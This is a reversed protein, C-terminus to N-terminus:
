TGRLYGGFEGLRRLPVSPADLSRLMDVPEYLNMYNMILRRKADILRGLASGGGRSHRSM